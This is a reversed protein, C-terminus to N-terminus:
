LPRSWFINWLKVCVCSVHISFVCDLAYKFRKSEASGFCDKSSDNNPWVSVMRVRGAQAHQELRVHLPPNRVKKYIHKSSTSRLLPPVVQTLIVVVVVVFSCTLPLISSPIKQFTDYNLAHMCLLVGYLLCVCKCACCVCVQVGLVYVCQLITSLLHSSTSVSM